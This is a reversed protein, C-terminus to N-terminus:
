VDGFEEVVFMEVRDVQHRDDFVGMKTVVATDAVRHAVVRHRGLQPVMGGDRTFVGSFYEAFEAPGVISDAVELGPVM